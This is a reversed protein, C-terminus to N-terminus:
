SGNLHEYEAPSLAKWAADLEAHLQAAEASEQPAEGALVQLRLVNLEADSYSDETALQTGLIRAAALTDPDSMDIRTICYAVGEPALVLMSSEWADSGCETLRNDQGPEISLVPEGLEAAPEQWGFQVVNFDGSGSVVDGSSRVGGKGAASPGLVVALLGTLVAVLGVAIGGIRLKRKQSM